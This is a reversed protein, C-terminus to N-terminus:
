SQELGFNDVTPLLLIERDGAKAVTVAFERDRFELSQPQDNDEEVCPKRIESTLSVAMKQEVM